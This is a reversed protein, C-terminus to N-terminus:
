CRGREYWKKASGANKIQKNTTEEEKRYAKRWEEKEKEPTDIKITGTTLLLENLEDVKLTYNM